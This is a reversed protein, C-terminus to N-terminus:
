RSPANELTRSSTNRLAVVVATGERSRVLHEAAGERESEGKNGVRGPLGAARTKRKRQLEASREQTSQCGCLVLVTAVACLAADCSPCALEEGCFFLWAVGGAAVPARWGRVIRM